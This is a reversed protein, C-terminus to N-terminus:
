ADVVCNYYAALKKAPGKADKDMLFDRALDAYFEPKNVGHKVATKYYDSYMMNMACEWCYSSIGDPKFADTEKLSWHGGTTGDENEMELLWKEAKEPSFNFDKDVMEKLDRVNKYCQIMSSIAEASRPSPGGSMYNLIEEGLAERYEDIEKCNM